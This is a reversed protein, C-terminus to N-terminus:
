EGECVVERIERQVAQPKPKPKPKPKTLKM